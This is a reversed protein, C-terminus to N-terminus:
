SWAENEGDNADNPGLRSIGRKVARKITTPCRRFFASAVAESVISGPPLKGLESVVLTAARKGTAETPM